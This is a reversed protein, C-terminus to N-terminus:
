GESPVLVYGRIEGDFWGYGCIWGRDNIANATELYWRLRAEAPIRFNLDHWEGDRWLAAVWEGFTANPNKNARFVVEGNNNIDKVFASAEVGNFGGLDHMGADLGYAPRPLWLAFSTLGTGPPTAWGVVQGRDNIASGRSIQGHETSYTDIDHIGAPMGFMPEPLWIFARIRSNWPDEDLYTSYGVVMGRNNIDKARTDVGGFTGLDIMESGNWVFASRWVHPESCPAPDSQGVVWGNNNIARATSFTGGLGGLEIVGQAPDWMFATSYGQGSFPSTFGVGQGSDNIDYFRGGDLGYQSIDHIGADLGYAPRPLWLTPQYLDNSDTSRGAIQGRNNIGDAESDGYQVTPDIPGLDYIEYSPVQATASLTLAAVSSAGVLARVVTMRTIRTHRSTDM